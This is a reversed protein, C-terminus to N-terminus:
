DEPSRGRKMGSKIIRDILVDDNYDMDYIADMIISMGIVVELNDLASIYRILKALPESIPENGSVMGVSIDLLNAFQVASRLSVDTRGAFLKNVTARNLKLIKAIKTKTLNKSKAIKYLEVERDFSSIKSM